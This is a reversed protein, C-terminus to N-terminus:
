FDLNDFRSLFDSKEDKEKKNKTPSTMSNKLDKVSTNGENKSRIRVEDSEHSIKKINKKDIYKVKTGHIFENGSIRSGDEDLFIGGNEALEEFTRRYMRLDIDSNQIQNQRKINLYELRDKTEDPSEDEISQSRNIPMRTPLSNNTNISKSMLNRKREYDNVMNLVNLLSSGEVAERQVSEIEIEGAIVKRFIERDRVDDDYYQLTSMPGDIIPASSLRVSIGDDEFEGSETEIKKVPDKKLLHPNQSQVLDRWNKLNANKNESTKALLTQNAKDIKKQISEIDVNDISVQIM